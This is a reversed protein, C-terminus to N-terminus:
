SRAESYQRAFREADLAVEPVFRPIATSRMKCKLCAEPAGPDMAEWCIRNRMGHWRRILEELSDEHVNGVSARGQWDYCCLHISGLYDVIFETFMRRCPSYNVEDGFGNLRGDLQWHHVKTAPQVKRLAKLNRTPHDALGYDTVHIEDFRRFESCDEPILTGNTWLVFSAEPVKTVIEHMLRWMREAAMLPENYYHWGIRGRFGHKCYMAEAVDV